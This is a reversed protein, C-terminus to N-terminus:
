YHCIVSLMQCMGHKLKRIELIIINLRAKDKTIKWLNLLIKHFQVTVLIGSSVFVLNKQRQFSFAALLFLLKGRRSHQWQCTFMPENLTKIVYNFQQSGDHRLILLAVKRGGDKIRWGGCSHMTCFPVWFEVEKHFQYNFSLLRGWNCFTQSTKQLIKKINLM